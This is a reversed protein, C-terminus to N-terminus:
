DVFQRFWSEIALLTFISYAADIRGKKNDSILQRISKVDFIGRKRINEESLYDQIMVDLDNLIWKRVPAGFGTKPRYILEKPLYKEMMKRLIYKTTTGKMKLSIPLETSWKVLDVDLFPVRIEVGAAMGLKDTYNLCENPLFYKMEWYLLQNLSSAEEPIQQLASKLYNAPNYQAINERIDQHFLGINRNLPLWEYYGALRDSQSKSLHQTLKQLKRGMPRHANLQQSVAKLGNGAFSPLHRFFKELRLAQHRRYGSFVDDGGTGGLLVTHGNERARKSINYVNLPAPNGQPEDLHWIMKDFDELINLDAHVIELDVQLHKAVKKAYPLDNEAGNSQINQSGTDITYCQIKQNPNLKRAMAVLSSSDLGGSLFFGVPVDSLLQDNVSQTLHNELESIWEQETKQRTKGTFPIDYYQELQFQAPQEINLEIYHGAPVKKVFKLPTQTDPSWLFHLYSVLANYDITKDFGPIHLFSKIESGFLFTKEKQYFYLPKVGFQDRAILLKQTSKQYIAFAFIGNLQQLISKGYEIYGYLLTEADGTSRFPYKHAIKERIKEHNYIEGNFVMVFDGNASQMPQHGSESLDQISLRQHGLAIKPNAFIGEDDPGRHAIAQNAKKILKSANEACIGIIGCM